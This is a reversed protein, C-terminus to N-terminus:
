RGPRRVKAHRLSVPSGTDASQKGNVIAGELTLQEYLADFVGRLKQVLIQDMSPSSECDHIRESLQTLLTRSPEKLPGCM